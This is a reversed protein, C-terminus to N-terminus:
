VAVLLVGGKDGGPKLGEQTANKRRTNEYWRSFPKRRLRSPASHDSAGRQTPHPPTAQSWSSVYAGHRGRRQAGSGWSGAQTVTAAPVRLHNTFASAGFRTEIEAAAPKSDDTTESNNLLVDPDM